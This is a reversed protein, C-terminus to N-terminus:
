GAIQELVGKEALIKVWAHIAPTYDKKRGEVRELDTWLSNIEADHRALVGAQDASAASALARLHLQMDAPQLVLEGSDDDSAAPEDAPNGTAERLARTFQGRPVSLAGEAASIDASPPPAISEDTSTPMAGILSLLPRFKEPIPAESVMAPTVWYEPFKEPTPLRLTAATEPPPPPPGSLSALRRETLELVRANAAIERCLDRLPSQCMALLNFEFGGGYDEM